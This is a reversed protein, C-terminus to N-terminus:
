SRCKIEDKQVETLKLKRGKSEVKQDLYARPVVLDCPVCSLAVRVLGGQRAKTKSTGSHFKRGLRHSKTGCSRITCIAWKFSESSNPFLQRARVWDANQIKKKLCM